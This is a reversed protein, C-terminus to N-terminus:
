KKLKEMKLIYARIDDSHKMERIGRTNDEYDDMNGVLKKLDIKEQPNM